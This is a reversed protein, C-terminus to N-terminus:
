KDMIVCIWSWRRLWHFNRHYLYHVLADLFVHLLGSLFLVFFVEGLFSLVILVVQWEITHFLYPQAEKRRYLSKHLWIWEQFNLGKKWVFFFLHDIDILFSYMVFILFLGLNLVGLGYLILGVILGIFFHFVGHM